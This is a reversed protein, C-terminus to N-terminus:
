YVAFGSSFRHRGIDARKRATKGSASKRQGETGERLGRDSQVAGDLEVVIM